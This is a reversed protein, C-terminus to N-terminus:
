TYLGERVVPILTRELGGVVGSREVRGGRCRPVNVGGSWAVLLGVQAQIGAVENNFATLHDAAMFTKLDYVATSVASNIECALYEQVKILDQLLSLSPAPPLWIVQCACAGRM